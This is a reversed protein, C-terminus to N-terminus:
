SLHANIEDNTMFPYQSISIELEISLNKIDSYSISNIASLKDVGTFIYIIGNNVYGTMSLSKTTNSLIKDRIKQCDDAMTKKNVVSGTWQKIMSKGILKKFQIVDYTNRCPKKKEKKSNSQKVVKVIPKVIPKAIKKSKVSPVRLIKSM